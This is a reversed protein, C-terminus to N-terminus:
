LVNECGINKLGMYIPEFIHSLYITDFLIDNILAVDTFGKHYDRRIYYPKIIDMLEQIDHKHFGTFRIYLFLITNIM